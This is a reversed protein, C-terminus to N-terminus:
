TLTQHFQKNRRELLLYYVILFPIGGFMIFLAGIIQTSPIVNIIFILNRGIIIILWWVDLKSPSNQLAQRLQLNEYYYFSFFALMVGFMMLWMIFMSPDIILATIDITVFILLAIGMCIQNARPIYTSWHRNAPAPRLGAGAVPQELKETTQSVPQQAVTTTQQLKKSVLLIGEEINERYWGGQQSLHAVIQEKPTGFRLHEEIYDLLEKTIM